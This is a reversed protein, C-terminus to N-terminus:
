FARATEVGRVGDVELTMELGKVGIVLTQEDADVKTEGSEETEVLTSNEGSTSFSLDLLTASEVRLQLDRAFSFPIFWVPSSFEVPSYDEAGVGKITRKGSCTKKPM